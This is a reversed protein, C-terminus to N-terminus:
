WDEGAQQMAIEMELDYITSTYYTQCVFMADIMPQLQKGINSVKTHPAVINWARYFIIAFQDATDLETKGPMTPVRFVADGFFWEAFLQDPHEQIKKLVGIAEKKTLFVGVEYALDLEPNVGVNLLNWCRGIPRKTIKYQADM